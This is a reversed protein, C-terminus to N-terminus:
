SSLRKRIVLIISGIAGVLFGLPCVFIAIIFFLPEDGLGIRAWFDAGFWIIFLSYIVGHLLVAVLFGLLSSGTLIVFKKLKGQLKWVGFVVIGGGLIVIPLGYKLFLFLM